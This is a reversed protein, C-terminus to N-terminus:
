KSKIIKVEYVRESSKSKMVFGSGYITFIREESPELNTLICDEAALFESGTKTSEYWTGRLTIDVAVDRNNKVLGTIKSSFVQRPDSKSFSSSGASKTVEIKWDPAERLEKRRDFTESDDDCISVSRVKLGGKEIWYSLGNEVYLTSDEVFTDIGLLDRKLDSVLRGVDPVNTKANKLSSTLMYVKGKNFFAILNLEKTSWIGTGSNALDGGYKSAPLGLLSVVKGSSMGYEIGCLRIPEKGEIGAFRPTTVDQRILFVGITLALLSM